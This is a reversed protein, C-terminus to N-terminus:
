TRQRTEEVLWFDLTKSVTETDNLRNVVLRAKM